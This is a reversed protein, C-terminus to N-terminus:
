VQDHAAAAADVPVLEHTDASADEDFDETAYATEGFIALDVGSKEDSEAVRVPTVKNILWLFAYTVGFSYASFLVVAATQKWFFAGGGRILGDAGDANVETSAFVGLLIVGFFGGIGHVGWVDLADDLGLRNKLAVALYCLVAAIIGIVPAAWIPVFGAGPTITALGAVMGTLLGVLTPKNTHVWSIILWALGAFSAALDTNLFALATVPTVALESGANFGFWGFWLLGTGIAVLPISHAHDIASRKGVFIVSALAAFGATAHVVIGGAFDLVGWEALFGGGWVAFCAPFYVFTLWLVLFM